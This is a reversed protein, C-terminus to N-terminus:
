HGTGTVAGVNTLDSVGEAVARRVFRELRCWFACRDELLHRDPHCICVVTLNELREAKPRTVLEFNRWLRDFVVSGVGPQIALPLSQIKEGVLPVKSRHGHTGDVGPRGLGGFHRLAQSSAFEPAYELVM